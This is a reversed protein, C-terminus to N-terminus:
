DNVLGGLMDLIKAERTMEKQVKYSKYMGLAIIATPLLTDDDAIHTALDNTSLNHVIVAGKPNEETGVNGFLCFGDFEFVNKGKFPEGELTEITIRYRNM